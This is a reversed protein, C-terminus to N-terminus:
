ENIFHREKHAHRLRKSESNGRMKRSTFTSRRNAFSHHVLDSLISRLSERNLREYEITFTSNSRNCIINSLLADLQYRDRGTCVNTHALALILHDLISQPEHKRQDKEAPQHIVTYRADIHQWMMRIQRAGLLIKSTTFHIELTIQAEAEAFVHM